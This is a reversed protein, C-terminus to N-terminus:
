GTEITTPVPWWPRVYRTSRSPNRMCLGTVQYASPLRQRRAGPVVTAVMKGEFTGDRDIAQDAMRASGFGDVPGVVTHFDVFALNAAFTAVSGARQVDRSAALLGIGVAGRDDFIVVPCDNM